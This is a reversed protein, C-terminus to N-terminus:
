LSGVPGRHTWIARKMGGAEWSPPRGAWSSRRAIPVAIRATTRERQPQAGVGPLAGFGLRFRQGDWRSASTSRTVWRSLARHGPHALGDM